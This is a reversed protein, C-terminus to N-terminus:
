SWCVFSISIIRLYSAGLRILEADNTFILMMSRPVLLCCLSVCIGISLSIRLAIGQVKEITHLDKRGWYQACLMTAGTGMGSLFMYIISSYQTALSSAALSDQGVYNLMVVDASSVASSLLNQVIIPLVIVWMKRYFDKDMKKM